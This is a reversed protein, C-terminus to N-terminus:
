EAYVILTVRRNQSRGEEAANDAIPKTQGFGIATLKTADFGIEELLKAVNGARRESLAQNYAATGVNDTHGEVRVKGINAKKLGNGIGTVLDRGNASLTDVGSSFLVKSESFNLAWDQGDYEFGMEKLAQVQEPSFTVPKPPPPPTQCAALTFSLVFLAFLWRFSPKKLILM